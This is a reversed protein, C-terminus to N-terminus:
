KRAKKKAAGAKGKKAVQKGRRLLETVSAATSGAAEAADAQPLGLDTLFRVKPLVGNVRKPDSKAAQALCLYALAKGIVPLWTAEADRENAM